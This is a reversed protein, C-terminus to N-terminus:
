NGSVNGETSTAKIFETPSRYGLAKHPHVTNYHQFWKPLSAIVTAADTLPSVRAYDRKLTRVFAEAMGNSQPSRVPTTIPMLGIERAFTKTNGAIYCSGNDSLWEIGHPLRNVLGFRHEVASLMLDCVDESKIGATTAVYSMVERDCCDLAFAIRVKERNDCTLELGDSCWRMNSLDTAIRGDHRRTEGHKHRKLLLHHVKMIRYVRKHNPAPCGALIAQRKLIAHVRRYGYSPMEALIAKIAVALEADPQPPRGQPKCPREKSQEVLNSRSVGLVTAIRKM